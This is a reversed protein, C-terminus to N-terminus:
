EVVKGDAVLLHWEADDMGKCQDLTRGCLAVGCEAEERWPCGVQDNTGGVLNRVSIV